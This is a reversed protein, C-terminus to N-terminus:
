TAHDNYRSPVAITFLTTYSSNTWFVSALIVQPLIGESGFHFSPAEDNSAEVRIMSELCSWAPVVKQLFALCLHRRAAATSHM